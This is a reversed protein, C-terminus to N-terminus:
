DVSQINEYERLCFFPRSFRGTSGARGQALYVTSPAQSRSHSPWAESPEILRPSDTENDRVIKSSTRSPSFLAFVRSFRAFPTRDRSEVHQAKYKRPLGKRRTHFRELCTELSKATNRSANQWKHASKWARPVLRSSNMKIFKKGYCIELNGWPELKIRALTSRSDRLWDARLWAALRAITWM